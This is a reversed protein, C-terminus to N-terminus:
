QPHTAVAVTLFAANSYNCERMMEEAEHGRRIPDRMSFMERDQGYRGYVVVPYNDNFFCDEEQWPSNQSWIDYNNEINGQLCMIQDRDLEIGNGDRALISCMHSSLTTGLTSVV